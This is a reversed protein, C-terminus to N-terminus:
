IGHNRRFSAFESIFCYSDPWQAEPSPAIGVVTHFLKFRGGNLSCEKDELDKYEISFGGSHYSDTPPQDFLIKASLIQYDNKEKDTLYVRDGDLKALGDAFVDDPTLLLAIFTFYNDEEKSKNWYYTKDEASYKWDPVYYACLKSYILMSDVQERVSCFTTMCPEEWLYRQPQRYQIASAYFGLSNDTESAPRVGNFPNSSAEDLNDVLSLFSCGAASAALIIYLLWKYYKM